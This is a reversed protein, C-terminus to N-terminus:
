TRLLRKANKHGSLHLIKRQSHFWLSVRKSYDKVFRRYYNGLGIIGRVERVNWPVPWNAIKALNDPDPLIGERTIVHGLFTVRDSFFLCKAPKLKLGAAGFWTLVVDLREINEDFNCGFIIVDDLYILCISWQLGALVLEMLRQYTARAGTLGFPMFLFEHLDYKSCFATKPIDKEAMPVQCYASLFDTVSYVTSGALANISDEIRPIPLANSNLTLSNLRRFDVCPCVDGTKKRVMVLPSAWPSTSPQIGGQKTFKEIAKRDEGAFALPMRRPPQKVPRFDGTDITHEVLNTQGIDFEDKAFVNQHDLFLNHIKRKQEESKGKASKEYLERLHEPVPARPEDAHIRRAIEKRQWKSARRSLPMTLKPELKKRFAIRKVISMNGVQSPDESKSIINVINISEAQGIVLDQKIQVPECTPNFICVPVTVNDATDVLTSALVCGYNEPLNTHMELLVRSEEEDKRDERRDIYAQGIIEAMPPVVTDEAMTVRRIHSPWKLELPISVGHFVMREETNLIDAPGSPDDLLLDDGFLVDYAIGVTRCEHDFQLPGIQLEMIASGYNKLEGGGAHNTPGSERLKPQRNEPIKQYVHYSVSTLSAGSDITFNVKIGDIAGKAYIGPDQPKQRRTVNASSAKMQVTAGAAAEKAFRSSSSSSNTIEVSERVPAGETIRSSSNNGMEVNEVLDISSSIYVDQGDTTKKQTLGDDQAIGQGDPVVGELKRDRDSPPPPKVM